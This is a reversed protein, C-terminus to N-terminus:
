DNRRRGHYLNAVSYTVGAVFMTHPIEGEIRGAIGMDFVLRQKLTYLASTLFQASGPFGDQASTVGSLEATAGWKGRIPHSWALANLLNHRFGGRPRGLLNGVLNFDFHNKGLDKSALFTFSHDTEGSGLGSAATPAKFMYMLAISPLHDSDRTLRYKFGFATDGLGHTGSDAIMPINALRFEFNSTLGFKFLDNIDQHSSAADIGWETELVGRQVPEATTSVTPRNPVAVIEEQARAPNSALALAILCFSFIQKV